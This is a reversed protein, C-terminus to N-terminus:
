TSEGNKHIVSEIIISDISYNGDHQAIRCIYSFFPFSCTKYINKYKMKKEDRCLSFSTFIAKRIKLIVNFTSFVICLSLTNCLSM